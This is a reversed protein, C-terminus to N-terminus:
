PTLRDLCREGLLGGRTFGLRILTGRVFAGCGQPRLAGGHLRLGRVNRAPAPFMSLIEDRSMVALLGLVMELGRVVCRAPSVNGCVHPALHALAVGSTAGEHGSVALAAPFRAEQLKMVVVRMRAAACSEDLIHRKAASSVVRKSGFCVEPAGEHCPSRPAPLGDRPKRLSDLWVSLTSANSRSLQELM